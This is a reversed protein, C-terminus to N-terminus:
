QAKFQAELHKIKRQWIPHFSWTEGYSDSELVSASQGLDRGANDQTNITITKKFPFKRM